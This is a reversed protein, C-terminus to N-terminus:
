RRRHRARRHRVQRHLRRHPTDTGATPEDDGSASFPSTEVPQTAARSGKVPDTQAPDADARLLPRRGAPDALLCAAAASADAAQAAPVGALAPTALAAPTLAIAALGAAAALATILTKPARASM